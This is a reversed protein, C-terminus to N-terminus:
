RRTYHLGPKMGSAYRLRPKVGSAYHLRPKMGSALGSVPLARRDCARPM